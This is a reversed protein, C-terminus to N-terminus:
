SAPAYSRLSILRNPPTICGLRRDSVARTTAPTSSTAIASQSAGRSASAADSWISQATCCVSGAPLMSSAVVAGPAQSLPDISQHLRIGPHLADGGANTATEPKTGVTDRGAAAGARAVGDSWPSSASPGGVGGGM